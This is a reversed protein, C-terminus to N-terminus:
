LLEISGALPAAVFDKHRCRSRRGLPLGIAASNELLVLAGDAVGVWLDGVSCPQLAFRGAQSVGSVLRAEVVLEERRVLSGGMGAAMSADVAVGVIRGLLGGAATRQAETAATEGHFRDISLPHSCSCCAQWQQERTDSRGVLLSYCFCAEEGVEQGVEKTEGRAKKRSSM